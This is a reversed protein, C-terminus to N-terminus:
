GFRPVANDPRDLWAVHGGGTAVTLGFCDIPPRNEITWWDMGREISTWLERAGDQHVRGLEDDPAWSVSAWSRDGESLSYFWADVAGDPRHTVTHTADPVVLGLMFAADTDTLEEPSLDTTSERVTAPWPDPLHETHRPWGDVQARTKMVEVPRLFDGSALKGNGDDAVTLGVLADQDSFPTDWRALIFGDPRVQEIWPAPIQRLGRTAIIRDYPADPPDGDLGVHAAGTPRLGTTSLRRRARETVVNGVGLRHALLGANWGTGTGTELVRMGPEVDLDSLMSMLLSPRLSSSTPATGASRGTHTGDDWQTILTCDTDAYHHWLRPDTTRDIGDRITGTVPDHAWIREPLFAARDVAVFAPAWDSTMAGSRILARGLEEWGPRVGDPYAPSETRTSTGAFGDDPM